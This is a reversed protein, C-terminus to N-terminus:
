VDAKESLRDEARAWTKGMSTLRMLAKVRGGAGAHKWEVRRTRTLADVGENYQDPSIARRKM